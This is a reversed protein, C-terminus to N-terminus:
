HSIRGAVVIAFTHGLGFCLCPIRRMFIVRGFRLPNTQVALENLIGVALDFLAYIFDATEVALRQLFHHIPQAFGIVHRLVVFLAQSDTLHNLEVLGAVELGEVFVANGPHTVEVAAHVIDIAERLSIGVRETYGTCPFRHNVEFVEFSGFTGLENRSIRLPELVVRWRSLLVLFLFHLAHTGLDDSRSDKGAVAIGRRWDTDVKRIGVPYAFLVARLGNSNIVERVSVAFCCLAIAKVFLEHYVVLYASDVIVVATNTAVQM